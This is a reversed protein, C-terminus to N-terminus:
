ANRLKQGYTVTEVEILKLSMALIPPLTPIFLSVDFDWTEYVTEGSM